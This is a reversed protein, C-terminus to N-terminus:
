GYRGTVYMETERQRPRLDVVEKRREARADAELLDAKLRERPAGGLPEDRAHEFARAVHDHRLDHLLDGPPELGDVRRRDDM